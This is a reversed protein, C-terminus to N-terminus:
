HAAESGSLTSVSRNKKALHIQTSLITYPLRGAGQPPNDKEVKTEGHVNHSTIHTHMFRCVCVCVCTGPSIAQVRPGCYM